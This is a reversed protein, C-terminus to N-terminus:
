FKASENGLPLYRADILSDNFQTAQRICLNLYEEFPAGPREVLFTSLDGAVVPASFSTGVPEIFGGAGDPVFTTMYAALSASFRGYNSYPALQLYDKSRERARGRYWHSAVSVVRGSYSRAFAAPWQPTDDISLTDNGASAIVYVDNEAATRIACELAEPADPQSIGWSTNIVDSGAAIAEYIAVLVGFYPSIGEEGFTKFHLLQLPQRSRYNGIVAAAVLSGHPGLDNPDDDRDIFDYGFSGPTAYETDPGRRYITAEFLDRNRSILDTGSDIITVLQAPTEEGWEPWAYPPLVEGFYEKGGNPIFENLLPYDKVTRIRTDPPAVVSPTRPNYLNILYDPEVTGGGGNATARMQSASGGTTNLDLGPPVDFVVVNGFPGYYKESPDIGLERIWQNLLNSDKECSSLILRQFATGACNMPLTEGNPAAKQNYVIEGARGPEEDDYAALAVFNTSAYPEGEGSLGVRVFFSSYTNAAVTVPLREAVQLVTLCETVPEVEGCALQGYVRLRVPGNAGKYVHLVFDGDTGAQLEALRERGTLTCDDPLGPFDFGSYDPVDNLQEWRLLKPSCEAPASLPLVETAYNCDSPEPTVPDLPECGSLLLLLGSLLLSRHVFSSM